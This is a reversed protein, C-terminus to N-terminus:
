NIYAYYDHNFTCIELLYFSQNYGLHVVHINEYPGDLNLIMFSKSADTHAQITTTEDDELADM